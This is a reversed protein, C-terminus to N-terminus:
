QRRGRRSAAAAERHFSVASSEASAAGPGPPETDSSLVRTAGVPPWMGQTGEGREIFNPVQQGLTGLSRRPCEAAHDDDLDIALALVQPRKVRLRRAQTVAANRLAQVREVPREDGLHRSRQNLRDFLECIAGNLWWLERGLRVERAQLPGCRV